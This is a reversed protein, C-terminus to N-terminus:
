ELDPLYLQMTYVLRILIDAAVAVVLDQVIMAAQAVASIAAVAVAVAVATPTLDVVAVKYRVAQAASLHEAQLITAALAALVPDPLAV